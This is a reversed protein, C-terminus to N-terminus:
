PVRKAQRCLDFFFMYSLILRDYCLLSEFVIHSIAPSFLFLNRQLRVMDQLAKQKGRSGDALIKLKALVVEGDDFCKCVEFGENWTSLPIKWEGLFISLWRFQEQKALVECTAINVHAWFLSNLFTQLLVM